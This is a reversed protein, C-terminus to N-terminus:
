STRALIGILKELRNEPQPPRREFRTSTPHAEVAGILTVDEWNTYYYSNYIIYTHRSVSSIGVKKTRANHNIKLILRVVM